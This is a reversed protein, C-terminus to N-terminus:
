KEYVLIDNFKTFDSASGILIFTEGSITTFYLTDATTVYFSEINKVGVMTRNKCSYRNTEKSQSLLLWSSNNDGYVSINNYTCNSDALVYQSFLVTLLYVYITKM